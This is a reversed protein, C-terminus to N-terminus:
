SGRLLLHARLPASPPRKRPLVGSVGYDGVTEMNPSPCPLPWHCSVCEERVVCSSNPTHTQQKQPGKSCDMRCWLEQIM